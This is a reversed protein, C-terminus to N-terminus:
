TGEMLGLGETSGTAGVAEPIKLGARHCEM